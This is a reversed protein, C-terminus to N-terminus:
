IAALSRFTNITWGTQAAFTKQTTWTVEDTSVELRMNKPARDAYAVAVAIEEVKVPNAFIFMLWANTTGSSAWCQTGTMVGDFAKFSENGAGFVSSAICAGTTNRNSNGTAVTQDAGGATARMEMEQVNIFSAGGNNDAMFLRFGRYYGPALTEPLTRVQSPLPFGLNFSVADTWSSGDDSYQLKANKPAARWTSSLTVRVMEAAVASPFQMAIWQNTNTTVTWNTTTSGDFAKSPTDGGSSGSATATGGSPSIASGVSDLFEMEAIQIDGSGYNDTVFLRWYVHSGYAGSPASTSAVMLAPSPFPHM